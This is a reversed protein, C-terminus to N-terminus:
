CCQLFFEIQKEIEDYFVYILGMDGWMLEANAESDIQFLLNMPEGSSKMPLSEGQVWTSYGGIKSLYVREGILKEFIQTYADSYDEKNLACSLQYAEKNYYELADWDPLSKIPNFTIECYVSNEVEVPKEIRIAKEPNIKEYIKVMWGDENTKWPFWEWDFFFQILKINEPLNVIGDNYIQFIFNQYNGNKSKPWEEGVEFYPNGGFHSIFKPNIPQHSSEKVNIKVANKILPIVLKELDNLSTLSKTNM